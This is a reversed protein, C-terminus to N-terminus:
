GVALDNFGLLASMISAIIGAVTAGLIIVILPTIVTISREIRVKVDKDMIDALRSLMLPLRSTEEGTRLLGVAVKPFVGTAGLPQSLGEGEKLGDAVKDVLTGMTQNAISRRSLKLATPLPVNGELLVALTRAFRATEFHQVLMGLLPVNLITRDFAARAAPRSALQRVLFGLLIIGGFIFLGYRRLARSASMIAMSSAPLQGGTSAFLSEFQPVVYLLMLLIVGIALILLMTPYIMSTVVIRRLDEASEMAASLRALAEALRGNLEGAEAMAQATPSFLNPRAAMAQSLSRGERVEALMSVFQSRAGASQVNDIALAFARDLPLGADLLVALEGVLRGVDAQTKRSAKAVKKPVAAEAIDIPIAGNRRIEAIAKGRDLAIVSGSSIRGSADVARYQFSAM